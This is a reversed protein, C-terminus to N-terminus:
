NTYNIKTRIELINLQDLRGFLAGYYHLDSKPVSIVFIAMLLINIVDLYMSRLQRERERGVLEWWQIQLISFISLTYSVCISCM